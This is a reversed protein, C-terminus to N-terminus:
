SLYSDITASFNNHKQNFYNISALVRDGIKGYSYAFAFVEDDIEPEAFDLRIKIGYNNEAIVTGCISDKRSIGYPLAEREKM